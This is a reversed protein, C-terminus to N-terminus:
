PGSAPQMYVGSIGMPLSLYCRPSKVRFPIQQSCHCNAGGPAVRGGARSDTSLVCELNWPHQPCTPHSHIIRLIGRRDFRVSGSATYTAPAPAQPACIFSLAARRAMRNAGSSPAKKYIYFVSPQSRRWQSSVRALMCWCGHSSFCGCPHQKRRTHVIGVLPLRIRAYTSFLVRCHKTHVNM